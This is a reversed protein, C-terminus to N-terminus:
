AADRSRLLRGVLPAAFALLWFYVAYKPEIAAAITGPVFVLLPFVAGALESHLGPGTALRWLWTNIGAIATLNLGYIM